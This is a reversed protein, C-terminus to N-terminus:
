GGTFETLAAVVHDQEAETMGPFLPLSVCTEGIAEANPFAGEQLGCSEQWYTMRHLPTYHVSVGIGRDQLAEILADRSLPTEETVRAIYLHASHSDGEGAKAPLTLPLGALASDYRQWLAARADRMADLRALQHLGIGAALDTMNYKYGPAVVDYRWAAKINTFRDFADRSIGHLRMVKAREAIAADRTVLMGGEGTTMTKNAYFSFATTRAGCDGILQGAHHSPLAHAADDIVAIGHKEALACIATMDCPLGAFHVPMVARTRKTIAAEFHEPLMNFSAADCDVFVPAAGMYRVVEATATFTLSPLIVEDGEGIGIAELALHLAATASNVAVAHVGEDFLGAFAEEFRKAKPGTTLWGNRLSDVVEAIEAEGIDPRFFPVQTVTM